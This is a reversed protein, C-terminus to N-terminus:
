PKEKLGCLRSAIMMALVVMDEAPLYQAASADFLLDGSPPFEEDGRWLVLMVPVRPLAPVQVSADGFGAPSGGLSRGAALLEQERGAFSRVLRDISRARFNPLYREGGPVQAFSIWEGRLSAGSATRLYHLLLIREQIPAEEGGAALVVEFEPPRVQYLRNLFLLEVAGGRWHAGSRACQEELDAQGLDAAALEEAAQWALQWSDQPLAQM